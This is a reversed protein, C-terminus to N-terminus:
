PARAPPWRGRGAARVTLPHVDIEGLRPGLDAALRSLRSLAGAVAAVDLRAGEPERIIWALEVGGRDAASM